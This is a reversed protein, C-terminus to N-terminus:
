GLARWVAEGIEAALEERPRLGDLRVVGQREYEERYLRAQEELDALTWRDDKRDLSTAPPIDLYFAALPRPALLGILRRQLAFSANRGYRFRLQVTSDLAYRDYVVVRGRRTHRAITQLQSLANAFAVVTAWAQNVAASRERLVTGSTRELGTDRETEGARFRRSHALLRKVPGALRDLWANQGFPAWEVAAEYGLRELTDRLLRAQSSKGSGDIGSLAIVRPRRPRPIRLRPRSRDRFSRELEELEARLGWAPALERARLWADPEEALAAEIRRRRKDPLPGATGTLRALVLLSHHPAPRVLREHGAIPRAQTFLDDLEQQPLGWASAPVLDIADASGGNFRVWEDGRNRFGERVLADPIPTLDGDRALLDLDRGAGPLSGFVLVRGPAAADAIDAPARL